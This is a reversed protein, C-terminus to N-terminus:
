RKSPAVRPFPDLDEISTIKGALIDRLIDKNRAFASVARAYTLADLPASSSQQQYEVDSILFSLANALAVGVLLREIPDAITGIWEWAERQRLFVEQSGM